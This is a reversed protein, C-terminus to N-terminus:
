SQVTKEETKHIMIWLIGKIILQKFVVLWFADKGFNAYVQNFTLRRLAKQTLHLKIHSLIVYRVIIQTLYCFGIKDFM